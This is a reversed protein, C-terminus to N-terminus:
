MSAGKSRVGPREMQRFWQLALQVQESSLKHAGPFTELRLHKFGTRRMAEAVAAAHTPNAIPDTQGNSLFLPVQKFREGPQYLQLGLTARDENCGGMFIGVVNYGERMMAAGVTASRKAGGSFGACAVPWTKTQPWQRAVFELASSLMAWGWQVSDAEPTVKPGEGALVIWGEQFAVNTYYKMASVSSGGSPVSVVLIHRPKSLEFDAPVAIAGRVTKVTKGMRQAEYSTKASAPAQFETVAGRVVGNTGLWLGKPAVDAATLPLLIFAGWLLLSCAVATFRNTLRRLVSAIKLDKRRNHKM